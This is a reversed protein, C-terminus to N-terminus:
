SSLAKIKVMALATERGIEKASPGDYSSKGAPTVKVKEGSQVAM